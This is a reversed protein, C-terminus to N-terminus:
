GMFASFCRTADGGLRELQQKVFDLFEYGVRDVLPKIGNVVCLDIVQEYSRRAEAVDGKQEYLQGLNRLAKVQFGLEIPCAQEKYITPKLALDFQEIAQELRGFQHLIRGYEHRVWGASCDASLVGQEFAAIAKQESAGALQREGKEKQQEVLCTYALGMRAYLISKNYAPHMAAKEFEQVARDCRKEDALYQAFVGHSWNPLPSVDILAEYSAIAEEVRGEGAYLQALFAHLSTVSHHDRDLAIANQTAAIAEEIRGEKRYLGARGIELWIQRVRDGEALRAAEDYIKRARDLDGQEVLLNGASLYAIYFDPDDEIISLFEDLVMEKDELQDYALGRNYRSQVDSRHTTLELVQRYAALRAEEEGFVRHNYIKGLLIALDTPNFHEAEIYKEQSEEYRGLLQYSRGLYYYLLGINQEPYAAGSEEGTEKAFRALADEFQRAAEAFRRNHYHALGLSFAAIGLSQQEVVANVDDSVAYALTIANEM